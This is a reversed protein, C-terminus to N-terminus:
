LSGMKRLILTPDVWSGGPRGPSADEDKELRDRRNLAVTAAKMGAGEAEPGRCMHSRNRTLIMMAWGRRDSWSKAGEGGRWLVEQGKLKSRM